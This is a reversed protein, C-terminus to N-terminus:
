NGVNRFVTESLKWWIKLPLKEAIGVNYFSFNFSV